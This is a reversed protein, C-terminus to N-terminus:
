VAIIALALPQVTVAVALTMLLVAAGVALMLGDAMVTQAPVGTESVAEPPM